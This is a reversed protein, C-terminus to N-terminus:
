GMTQSILFHDNFIQIRGICLKMFIYLLVFLKKDLKLCNINKITLQELQTTQM